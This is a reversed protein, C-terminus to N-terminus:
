ADGLLLLRPKKFQAGGHAEDAEAAVLAV